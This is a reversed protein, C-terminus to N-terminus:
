PTLPLVRDPTGALAAVAGDANVLRYGEGDLAEIRWRAAPGAGDLPGLGNGRERRVGGDATSPGPHARRHCSPRVTVRRGDRRWRGPTWFGSATGPVCRDARRTRGM